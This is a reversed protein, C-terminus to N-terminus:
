DSDFYREQADQEQIELDDYDSNNDVLEYDYNKDRGELFSNYMGSVYFYYFM